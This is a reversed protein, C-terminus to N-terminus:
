NVDVVLKNLKKINFITYIGDTEYGDYGKSIYFSLLRPILLSSINYELAGFKTVGKQLLTEVYPLLVTDTNLFTENEIQKIENSINEYERVTRCNSLLYELEQLREESEKNHFFDGPIVGLGDLFNFDEKKVAKFYRGYELPKYAMDSFYFGTGEKKRSASKSIFSEDFYKFKNNTGHIIYGNRMWQALLQYYYQYSQEESEKLFRLQNETIILEKPM